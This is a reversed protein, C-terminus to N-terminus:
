DMESLMLFMPLASSHSEMFKHCLEPNANNLLKFVYINRKSAEIISILPDRYHDNSTLRPSVIKTYLKQTPTPTSTLGSRVM